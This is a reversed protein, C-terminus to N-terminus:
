QINVLGVLEEAGEIRRQLERILPLLEGFVQPLPEVDFNDEGLPASAIAEFVLHTLEPRWKGLKRVLASSGGGAIVSQLRREAEARSEARELRWIRYEILITRWELAAALALIGALAAGIAAAIRRGSRPRSM